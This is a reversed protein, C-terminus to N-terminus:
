RERRQEDIWRRLEANEPHQLLLGQAAELGEKTRGQRYLYDILAHRLRDDAPHALILQKLLGTAARREGTEFLAVAYVYGYDSSGPELDHARRFHQLAERDAHLRLQQLGLAHHVAASDPWWKLAAQLAGLADPERKERRYLEALNLYGAIFQPDIALAKRYAAEAAIPDGRDAYFLGLSVQAGPMEATARMSAVFEDFLAALAQQVHPPQQPLHTPALMQAVRIRVSKAPDSTLPLLDHERVEPAVAAYSGVAARRVLESPDALARRAQALM